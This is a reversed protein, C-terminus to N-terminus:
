AARQKKQVTQDPSDGETAESVISLINMPLPLDQQFAVQGTTSFGAGVPIRFYGTYLPQVNSNYPPDPVAPSDDIEALDSWAPAIQMPSLTSGDVQSGGILAGRSAEVLVNGAAIKKRQGQVSPAGADFYTGQLQAQFGLGITVASAPTDLTISGDPQVVRPTVVNGDALGTVSAGILHSLGSITTVPRTMTWTGADQRIIRGGSNPLVAIIPSVIQAVVVTPSAYGTITAIGGGLRIVKGVDGVAFVASGATFTASNDLTARAAAGSGTNAPDNFDLRPRVYGTGPATFAVATIVGGVITPVAVAGVGPGQGNDDVVAITTGASYGVGGVLGTVGTLAGLGTPTNASLTANPTPQPLTLGADVAWVDEVTAWMRDDMREIMYANKNGPFRQTALYLADIPPEIVSCVSCFLGNTDHRAWGAVAQTKYYTLSLLIGDSRVAWFLKSPQECWANERITYGMFLHTSLETLDVPESLVYLQYPLAYYYSGKSNLYIIDYNIKVPPVIPSVGTFAQPVDDQTSPSIAQVNTAFSGAGALLWASRGTMVLLGGSTQIMRQIGNVQVSWPSGVIADTAIPPIRSDFNKFAGPQSMFYTDTQNRTNAFARREQFYGPVSPYTGSQAGVLLSATAGTGDGSITVTDGNGYDHGADSVIYGVVAGNQVVVEISAGAGTATTITATAVTYGTGGSVGEVGIIQGRAFPDVHRPPVQAFDPIINVDTFATGYASGIYGFLSGGPIPVGTSPQAKYVNYQNVEIVSDWSINVQGAQTSIEIGTARAIPSAISESGDDPSVATIEYEYFTTGAPNSVSASAADPPDVSNVAIVGDLVWDTDSIRSLDLPAYETGTEQNVCCLTMVDASQTFKLYPLDIENYPTAITYIVAGTGGGTYPHFGTSDVGDGYVDLLLFPSPGIIPPGIVYTNGNLETMGAVGSIYIWDGVSFPVVPTGAITFTAGLGLGDTSAQHVPNAPLASYIGPDSVTLAHPGFVTAQFSAGIGGGSTASQTMDGGAPNASFVGATNITLTGIGTATGGALTAGSVTAASAALTYANGGAGATDYSVTLATPTAAYTAVTLSANASANLDAALQVMTGGLTSQIQTQAAATPTTKFTWVVGNMTVTDGDAPISSFIISGTAKVSVLSAVRAIAATSFTGGALTITDNVAYGDGRARARISVLQTTAVALVAAESFTGGALTVLDGPAYSRTVAGLNATASFVGFGGATFTAPNAQTINGIPFPTKTVFAGNLIVRMYQHGFELALGQDISFDFQVVRPPYARGTQKSFGVFSTGARSNAGGRYNVTCNRM